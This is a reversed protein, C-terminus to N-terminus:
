AGVKLIEESQQTIENFAIAADFSSDGEYRLFDNHVVQYKVTTDVVKIQMDLSGVDGGRISAINHFIEINKFKNPDIKM